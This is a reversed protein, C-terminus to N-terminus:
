YYWEGIDYYSVIFDIIESMQDVTPFSYISNAQESSHHQGPLNIHFITFNKLLRKSEFCNFFKMFNAEHNLGIDHVTIIISNLKMILKEDKKAEQNSKKITNLHSQGNLFTQKGVVVSGYRTEIKELEVNEQLYIKDISLLSSASASDFESLEYYSNTKTKKQFNSKEIQNIYNMNEDENQPIKEYYIPM